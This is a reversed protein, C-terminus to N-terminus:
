NDQFRNVKTWTKGGDSTTYFDNAGQNDRIIWWGHTPDAMALLAGGYGAVETKGVTWTKGGDLTWGVTNSKDCAACYAGMFAVKSNIVYLPGPGAGGKFTGKTTMKLGPGPGAGATQNAVAITWHAGGDTTHFLSYGTQSMGSDGVMEVWADNEGMSRIQVSSIQADTQRTMVTKWTKGGDITRKVIVSKNGNLVVWGHKADHFYANGVIDSPVSLTTWTRGGDKSLYNADLAVESSQFHLFAGNVPVRGVPMWHKGGDPTRLLRDKNPTDSTSNFVVWAQNGNLAFIQSVTQEGVYQVKWNTGGNDTRAIWGKGGLWGSRSNIVRVATVHGMASANPDKAQSSTSTGSKSTATSSSNKTDNSGDAQSDSSQTSSDTNYTNTASQNNSSTGNDTTSTRTNETTSQSNGNAITSPSSNVGDANSQANPHTVTTGCGATFLLIASATVAALGKIYSKM